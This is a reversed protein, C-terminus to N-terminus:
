FYSEDFFLNVNRVGGTASLERIFDDNKQENKLRVYFSVEMLHEEDLSRVNIVEHRRCHKQIVPLYSPSPDGNSTYAFQLLYERQRPVGLGAKTIILIVIGIFITGLFAILFYGAGAAMGAALAFFIFVIDQTDKVATRFRIISMAGVLGFARALNNGIVMIVVATIMALLIMANVFSISYGPGKYTLRYLWSVLYGCILAVLLNRIIEAATLPFLSISQFEQIM